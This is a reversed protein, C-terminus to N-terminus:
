DKGIHSDKINKIILVLWVTYSVEGSWRHASPATYRRERGGMAACASRWARQRSTSPGAKPECKMRHLQTTRKTGLALM